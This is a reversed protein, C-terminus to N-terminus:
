SVKLWIESTRLSSFLALAAWRADHKICQSVKFFLHWDWHRSALCKVLSQVFRLNESRAAINRQKLPVLRAASRVVEVLVLEKLWCGPGWPCTCSSDPCRSSRAPWTAAAMQIEEEWRLCPGKSPLRMWWHSGSFSGEARDNRPPALCVNNTRALSGKLSSRDSSLCLKWSRPKRNRNAFGGGHTHTHGPSFAVLECAQVESWWPHPSRCCDQKNQKRERELSPSSRIISM